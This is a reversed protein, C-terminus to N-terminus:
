LKKVKTHKIFISNLDEVFSLQTMSVKLVTNEFTAGNWDIDFFNYKNYNPYYASRKFFNMGAFGLFKEKSAFNMYFDPLEIWNDINQHSLCTIQLKDIIFKCKDKNPINFIMFPYQLDTYHIM